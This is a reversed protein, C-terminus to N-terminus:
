KKLIIKKFSEFSDIKSKVFYIGEPLSSVPIKIEQTSLTTYTKNFVLQYNSNYLTIEIEPFSINNPVITLEEKVPNPYMSLEYSTIHNEPTDLNSFSLTLNGMNGGHGTLTGTLDYNDPYYSYAWIVDLKTLSSSFKFDTADPSVFNRYAKITRISNSVTNDTLTWNNQTDAQPASRNHIFSDTLVTASTMVICDVDVTPTGMSVSNFGLSFWRDSPGSLTLYVKSNQKDLDLQLSLSPDIVVVGTSKNQAQISLVALLLIFFFSKKISVM